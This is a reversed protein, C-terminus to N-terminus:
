HKGTRKSRARQSPAKVQPHSGQSSKHRSHFPKSQSPQSQTSRSPSPNAWSAQPQSNMKQSSKSQFPVPQSSQAQLNKAQSPKPQHSKFQSSPLLKSKSMLSPRTQFTSDSSRGHTVLETRQQSASSVLMQMDGAPQFALPNLNRIYSTPNVFKGSATALQTGWTCAQGPQPKGVTGALQSALSSSHGALSLRLSGGPVPGSMELTGITQPREPCAWAHQFIPRPIRGFTGNLHNGWSLGSFEMFRKDSYFRPPQLYQIGFHKERSHDRINQFPFSSLWVSRQESGFHSGKVGPAKMLPHSFSNGIPLLWSKEPLPMLAPTHHFNQRVKWRAGSQGTPMRAQSESSSKPQHLRQQGTVTGARNASSCVQRGQANEFDQDVQIGLERALSAMDEVSLNRLSSSIVEQLAAQFGKMSKRRDGAEEEEWFLLQSPKVKLIRQFHQAEENKRAQSSLVFYCREIAAEGLFMLLDWEKEGLCDTFLFVASSVEMLFGFQTWFIEIDGRLNAVAVPKQSFYPSEELDDPFCWTIEVLGDSIQRPLVLGSFDQHLFIRHSKVKAPNLLINLIRSKSFSCHGLRVFSIVPMKMLSLFMKTDGAPRRSSQTSQKKVIDKMAGLMLISKNNEADPLLLPLAFHCQFMNSMVERRLSSDSCLMCACLVDLPNITKRDQIELNKMGLLLKEQSSEDLVQNRLISDRATVDLAQVKMLFNWVLDGSTEPTWGYRRDLAFQKVYDPLLKRSRDMNLCSLVDKFVKKREEMCKEEELSINNELDKYNHEEDSFGTTKSYTSDEEDSYVIYELDDYHGEKMTTEADESYGTSEQYEGKGLHLSDDAEEYRGGGRLLTITTPFQYEAKEATVKTTDYAEEKERFSLATQRLSSKKDKSLDLSKLDLHEKEISSRFVEPNEPKKKRLSSTDQSNKSLGESWCSAISEHKLFEHSLGLITASEPFISLLCQLFNHYSVEGKKQVLVLLKQNKKLPDAVKELTEYEDESILRWSTLKDLICGPDEQLIKLLEEQQKELVELPASGMAM